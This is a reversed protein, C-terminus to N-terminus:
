TYGHEIKKEEVVRGNSCFCDFNVMFIFKFIYTKYWLLKQDYERLVKCRDIDWFFNGNNDRSELLGYLKASMKEM